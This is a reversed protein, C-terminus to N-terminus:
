RLLTVTGRFSFPDSNEYFGSLAWIYTEQECPQGNFTGDWSATIDTTEFVKEGWRNYISFTYREPKVNYLSPMFGDNKGNENPTFATPTFVFSQGLTTLYNIKSATDICGDQSEGILRVSFRGSNNTAFSMDFQTSAFMLQGISDYVAWNNRVTNTSNNQLNFVANPLRMFRNDTTFDVFPKEFVTILYKYTRTTTGGSGTAILTVDWVGPYEFIHTPEKEYSDPQGDGFVWRYTIVNTTQNRFNVTLPACGSLTDPTFNVVPKPDEIYIPKTIADMCSANWVRLTVDKSGAQTYLHSPDKQDKNTTPFTNDGFDWEYRLANVNASSITPQATFNVLANPLKPAVPLYSFDAKPKELVNFFASGDSSDVCGDKDYGFLMIKYYGFRNYIYEPNMENSMGGDGFTWFSRVSNVSTNTFAVTGKECAITTKQEFSISIKPKVRVIESVSDLCGYSNKIVLQVNYFTDKDKAAQLIKNFGAISYYVNNDITWENTQNNKSKNIFQYVGADCPDNRQAKFEALPKPYVMVSATTTDKCNFRQRYLAIKPQFTMNDYTNVYVHTLSTSDYVRTNDGLDWYLTKFRQSSHSMTVALDTCGFKKDLAITEKPQGVLYIAEAITDRCGSASAVQLIVFFTTDRGATSNFAYKHTPNAQVSNTGDGFSWIYRYGGLSNNYLIVNEKGCLSDKGFAFTAQPRGMVMVQKVVTDGVCGKASVVVHHIAYLSDFLKLGPLVMNETASGKTLIESTGWYHDVGNVSADTVKLLMPACAKTASLNFATVPKPHVTISQVATDSCGYQSTAKLTVTYPKDANTTNTFVTSDDANSSIVGNGFNWNYSLPGGDFSLSKNSALVSLPACGSLASLAFRADPRPHVTIAIPSSDRCGHETIGILVAEYVTDKQLADSYTANFHKTASTEGNGSLWIFRMIDIDGTDNPTSNNQFNVGLLACGSTKDATFRISPQPYLQITHNVSDKCGNTSVVRLAVKYFTDKTQSAYFTHSPSVSTSASGDDFLWNYQLNTNKSAKSQNTFAVILPGCGDTKDASFQAKPQPFVKVVSVTSDKCGAWNSVVLKPVYMTDNQLAAAYTAAPQTQISVTGNGLTWLSSIHRVSQNVFVVQLPGCGSDRNGIIAQPNKPTFFIKTISDGRCSSNSTVVLKVNVVSSDNALTTDNLTAARSVLQNNAYWFYDKAYISQNTFKFLAPACAYSRDISFDAKAGSKVLVIRETTDSCGAGSGAILTITFSGTNTYAHKVTKTTGLLLTQGDGFNWQFKNANNSLNTFALSDFTCTVTDSNIGAKPLGYATFVQRFTDTGCSDLVVLQITYNGATTYVKAAPSKLNSTTGDGFDWKYVPNAFYSSSQNTFNAQAPVCTNQISDFKADPKDTVTFTRVLSSTGCSNTVALTISHKGPLTFTYSLISDSYTKTTGNEVISWLRTYNMGKSTDTVSVTLPKCGNNSTFKYGVKPTYIVKIKNKFTDSGCGNKVILTVIYDGEKKYQHSQDAKSATWGYTSGDGFDWFYEKIDPLLCYNDISTNQFVYSKTPDCTTTVQWKAKDKDSIDIPNWTAVSNGCVNRATIKISAGCVGQKYLHYLTDQYASAPLTQLPGVGWDIEFTTSNSINYSNNVIRLAHPVCGRNSGSPPGVIGATPQRQNNVTGYVTDTCGNNNTVIKVTFIGLSNYQHQKVTNPNVDTGTLDSNGDGWFIKLQKLTDLSSFRISFTDPDSIYLICNTWSPSLSYNGSQDVITKANSTVTVTVASSSDICGSSDRVFLKIYNAGTRQALLIASDKGKVSDITVNNVKWWYTFQNAATGTTTNIVKVVNPLGCTHTVSYTFVPSVSCASTTQIALIFVLFYIFKLLDIRMM